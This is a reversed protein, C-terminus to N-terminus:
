SLIEILGILTNQFRAGHNDKESQLARHKVCRDFFEWPNKGPVIHLTLAAKRNNEKVGPPKATIEASPPWTNKALLELFEMLGDQWKEIEAGRKECIPLSDFCFVQRAAPSMEILHEFVSRSSTVFLGSIKEDYRMIHTWAEIRKTTMDPYLDDLLLNQNGANAYRSIDDDGKLDKILNQEMKAIFGLDKNLEFHQIDHEQAIQLFVREQLLYNQEKKSLNEVKNKIDTRIQTTSTEDFFPITNRQTKLFSIGNKEHLNGWAMYDKLIADLEEEDEKVPIRIALSGNKSWTLMDESVNQDSPQYVVIERFCAGLAEVVPRPIYTFPFYIPKM